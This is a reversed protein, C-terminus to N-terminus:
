FVKKLFILKQIKPKEPIKATLHPSKEGVAHTIKAVAHTIKAVAHTIKAWSSQGHTIKAM